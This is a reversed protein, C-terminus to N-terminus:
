NIRIILIILWFLFLDGIACDGKRKIAFYKIVGFFESFSYTCFFLIERQPLCYDLLANIIMSFYITLFDQFFKNMTINYIISAEDTKIHGCTMWSTNFNMNYKFDFIHYVGYNTTSQIPFFFLIFNFFYECKL